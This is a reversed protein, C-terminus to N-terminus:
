LARRATGRVVARGCAAAISTRAAGAYLGAWAAPAPSAHQIWDLAPQLKMMMRTGAPVPPRARAHAMDLFVCASAQM